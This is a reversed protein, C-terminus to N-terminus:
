WGLEVPHTPVGDRLLDILARVLCRPAFLDPGRYATIEAWRWWRFEAINEAALEAASLAGNPEFATTRVLFYDEVVGDFGRMHGPAVIERHWVRPPTEVELGVEERLERRLADIVTEGAEVGGGPTAWMAGEPVDFRCLLISDREDLVIARASHRLRLESVASSYARLVESIGLSRSPVAPTM